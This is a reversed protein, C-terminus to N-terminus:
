VDMELMRRKRECGCLVCVDLGGPDSNSMHRLLLLLSLSLSFFSRATM